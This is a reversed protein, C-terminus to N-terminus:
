LIPLLTFTIDTAIYCKKCGVEYDYRVRDFTTKFQQREREHKLRLRSQLTSGIAARMAKQFFITRTLSAISLTINIVRHNLLSKNLYLYPRAAGSVHGAYSVRRKMEDNRGQELLFLLEAKHNNRIKRFFFCISCEDLLIDHTFLLAYVLGFM